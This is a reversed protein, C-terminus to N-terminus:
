GRLLTGFQSLHGRVHRPRAEVGTPEADAEAQREPQREDGERAAAVERRRPAPAGEDREHHDRRQEHEPIHHQRRAEAEDREAAKGSEGDPRPERQEPAVVGGRRREFALAHQEVDGREGRKSITIRRAVTESTRAAVSM